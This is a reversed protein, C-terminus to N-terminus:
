PQSELSEEIYRDDLLLFHFGLLNDVTFARGDSLIDM